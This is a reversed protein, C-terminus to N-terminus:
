SLGEYSFNQYLLIKGDNRSSKIIKIKQGKIVKISLISYKTGLGTPGM